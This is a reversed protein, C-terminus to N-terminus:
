HQLIIESNENWDVEPKRKNIVNYKYKKTVYLNYKTIIYGIICGFIATVLAIIVLYFLYYIIRNEINNLIIAACITFISSFGISYNKTNDKYSINKLSAPYWSQCKNCNPCNKGTSFIDNYIDAIFPESKLVENNDIDQIKNKLKTIVYELRKKVTRDMNLQIDPISLLHSENVRLGDIKSKRVGRIAGIKKIASAKQTIYSKNWDTIYDCWECQYRYQIEHSAHSIIEFYSILGRAM